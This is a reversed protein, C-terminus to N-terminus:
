PVAEAYRLLIIIYDYLGALDSPDDFLLKSTGFAHSFLPFEASSNPM